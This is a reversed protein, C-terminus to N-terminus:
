GMNAEYRAKAADWIGSAIVEQKAFRRLDEVNKAKIENGSESSAAGVFHYITTKPEYWVEWNNKWARICYEVDSAYNFYSPDLGGISEHMKMNILVCSFTVWPVIELENWSDLQVNGMRHGLRSYTSVFMDDIFVGPAIEKTFHEYMPRPDKHIWGGGHVIEDGRVQRCGVIGCSKKTTFVESMYKLWGTCLIVDPNILAVAKYGDFERLGQNVATTYGVNTDNQVFTLPVDLSSIVEASDDSSANDIVLVDVPIDDARHISKLLRETHKATNYSVILAGYGENSM